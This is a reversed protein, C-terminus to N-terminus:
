KIQSLLFSQDMVCEHKSKDSRFGIKWNVTAHMFRLAKPSVDQGNIVLVRGMFDPNLTPKGDVLLTAEKRLELPMSSVTAVWHETEAGDAGRLFVGLKFAGIYDKWGKEQNSEVFGIVFADVDAGKEEGVSVKRKIQVDRPRSDTTIYKESLNKLVIGEGGEAVVQDYFEQKNATVFTSESFPGRSELIPIMRTLLDKRARLSQDVRWTALYPVDFVKFFLPAQTRQIHHSAETNLALLATVANLETGTVVGKASFLTTDLNKVNCLIETDVIFPVKFVGKFDSAKLFVGDKLFLVKETYDVPLYDEVSINRSFCGFGEEPHYTLWIRCGDWKREAIYDPSEMVMKKQEPTLHWFPFCLMPSEVELRRLLGWSPNPHDKKLHYQGLLHVLDKRGYGKRGKVELKASDLPIGRSQCESILEAHTRQM